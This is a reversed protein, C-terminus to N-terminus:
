GLRGEVGCHPCKVKQGIMNKNIEMAGQCKPCKIIVINVPKPPQVVTPTEVWQPQSQEWQPQSQEWQPQSQTVTQPIPQTVVAPSVVELETQSVVTPGASVGAGEQAAIIRSKRINDGILGIGIAMLLIMKPINLLKQYEEDVVYLLVLLIGVFLAAGGAIFIILKSSKYRDTENNAIKDKSPLLRSAILAFVFVIGALVVDIILGEGV